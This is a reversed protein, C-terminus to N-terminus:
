TLMKANLWGVKTLRPFRRRWPMLMWHLGLDKTLAGVVASNLGLAIGELQQVTMSAARVHKDFVGTAPAWGTLSFGEIIDDVIKADGYGLSVLIHKWLLLKKRCLIKQLHQPLKDHLASEESKLEAAKKLWGKFVAARHALLQHQPWELNAKIAQDVDM